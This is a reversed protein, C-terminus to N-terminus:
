LAEMSGAVLDEVSDAQSVAGLVYDRVRSRIRFARLRLVGARLGMREALAKREEIKAGGDEGGYYSLIIERDTRELKNLAEDLRDLMALYEQDAPEAKSAYSFRIPAPAPRGRYELYIKKAVGYFYLAPDGKYRSLLKPLKKTVRDFTVDALDESCHCGRSVFITILRRRILEYQRGAEEVDSDLWRLLQDFGRRDIGRDSVQRRSRGQYSELQKGDPLCRRSDLLTISDASVFELESGIAM